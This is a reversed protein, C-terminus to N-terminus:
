SKVACGFSWQGAVAYDLYGDPTLNDEGSDGRM